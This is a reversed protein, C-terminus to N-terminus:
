EKSDASRKVTSEMGLWERALSLVRAHEPVRELFSTHFFDEHLRAAREMLREWAARLVALAEERRGCADLAEAYTRQILIEGEEVHGQQRLRAMALSAYSLAEQPLSGRALLIDALRGQAIAQFQHVIECVQVARRAEAEAQELAGALRSNTALCIWAGGELRPSNHAECYRIAELEEARAEEHQGMYALALGLNVKANAILHRMGIREAEPLLARILEVAEPYAGFDISTFGLFGRLMAANRLDGSREFLEISEEAWRRYVGVDGALLAMRSRGHLMHARIIPEGPFRESLAEVRAGLSKAHDYEGVFILQLVTQALAILQPASVERAVEGELEAALECLRDRHVLRSAAVALQAAAAYWDAGGRPLVRMAELAWNEAETNEGRWAHAEARILSLTGPLAGFADYAAAREARQLAARLDSAALAQEAARCFWVAAREPEGGRDFHEALVIADRDGMRELWMGALRHGVVHDEKTLMRYAAERVLAHRFEFEQEHHFTAEPRPTIWEAQELAALQADLQAPSSTGLLAAVAGRWFVQGFVSAARLILRAEPALSELRTQVMALVTGPIDDKHGAAVARLLEELLFANGASREWLRRATERPVEGLVQQVLSECARRSLEGLQLVTFRRDRWIGPFASHVSPRALSVVLLPQDRLLRLAADVYEVTPGDGWHLDDLLLVVTQARCEAGLFEVWARRMQDGRLLPDRRAARLQESAEDPFPTGVLEGLFETVRRQSALPVHRAVRDELKRRQVETPEGDVLHATGRILQALLGFPAGARMSDGCAGWLAVSEGRTRVRQIFEQALRSKGVGAEATVLIARAVPEEACEELSEELARLEHERGVCNTPKGLLKRMNVSSPLGQLVHEGDEMAVDIRGEILDATLADLAIVPATGRAATRWLLAAARDIAEGVPQTGALRGQGTALAIPANPLVQRIAFACRAARVAQDTAPGGGALLIIRTGDVLQAVQAGSEILAADLLPATSKMTRTADAPLSVAPLSETRARGAPEAEQVLLVSVLRQEVHTLTAARTASLPSRALLSQDFAALMAAVSAADRPREAPNKALLRAVLSELPLPVGPFMESLRPVEELVLKALIALPHEGSFPKQGTLCHFLVCGLSFLDTRADVDHSGRAQEPSMYGPTGLIAGTQTLPQLTGYARALGFDIVKLGELRGGSLFLNSPKIDRHILGQAHVVALAEATRRALDVSEVLSLRERKLREGLDEGALWEMVLYPLGEDVGHAIYRVIAPHNLHALTHAERMFRAPDQGARGGILKVAVPAGTENDRGRYVTGMGGAGIEFELVFRKAITEQRVQM